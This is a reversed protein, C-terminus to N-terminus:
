CLQRILPVALLQTLCHSASVGLWYVSTPSGHPQILSLSSSASFSPLGATEVLRSGQSKESV